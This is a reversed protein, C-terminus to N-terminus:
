SANRSANWLSASPQSKREAPTAAPSADANPAGTPPTRKLRSSALVCQPRSVVHLLRVHEVSATTASLASLASQGPSPANPTFCDAPRRASELGPRMGTSSSSSSPPDLAPTKKRHSSGANARRAATAPTTPTPMVRTERRFALVDLRERRPAALFSASAAITAAEHAATAVSTAARNPAHTGVRPAPPPSSSSSDAKKSSAESATRRAHGTPERFSRAVISRPRRSSTM